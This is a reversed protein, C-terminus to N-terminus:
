KKDGFEYVTCNMNKIAKIKRGCGPCYQPMMPERHTTDYGFNSFMFDSNCEPCRFNDTYWEELGTNIIVVENM